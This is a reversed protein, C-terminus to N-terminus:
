PNWCTKELNLPQLSSLQPDQFNDMNVPAALCKGGRKRYERMAKSYTRAADHANLSCKHLEHSVRLVLDRLSPNPNDKLTNVLAATMSSGRFEWAIQSDECCSLSLVKATGADDTPSFKCWGNCPYMAVPSECVEIPSTPSICPDCTTQLSLNRTQVREQDESYRIANKNISVSVRRTQTRSNTLANKRVNQNWLTRSRRRGKSVYPVYVRNCHSHELDLLTASHCTDFVAILQSGPPLRDVLRMRLDNDRIMLKEEDKVNGQADTPLLCEDLGDEETNDDSRLQEAHGSYHFFFHDGSQADRVLNDLERLINERTPQFRQEGGDDILTVIDSPSYHYVNMVLDKMKFVDEHSGKLEGSSDTSPSITKQTPAYNIGILLARKKLPAEFEPQKVTNM